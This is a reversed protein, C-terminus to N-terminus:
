RLAQVSVQVGEYQISQGIFTTAPAPSSLILNLGKHYKIYSYV